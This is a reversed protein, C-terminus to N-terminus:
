SGDDASGERGGVAQLFVEQLSRRAPLLGRLQVGAAAAAGIIAETSGTVTFNEGEHELVECGAAGLQEAFRGAEGRVRVAWAEREAKRLESLDGSLVLKGHDMVLVRKCVQEVDNLLHSSFIVHVGRSGLDRVLGLMKARGAPDMGSTPEDLFVVEPGGVLAQALKIRQRMGVSYTHVARYREENMGVYDLVTHAREKAATADLGELQGCFAVYEVASLQPIHCDDEPMYGIHRRVERGHTRVDLGLVKASGRDARVLGMLIRLLTSKGAGNPGLLGTVGGAARLNLDALAEVEGYWKGLGSVEVVSLLVEDEMGCSSVGDRADYGSAALDTVDSHFFPVTGM